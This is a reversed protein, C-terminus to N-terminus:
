FFTPKSLRSITVAMLICTSVAPLNWMLNLFGVLVLEGCSDLGLLDNNMMALIVGYVLTAIQMFSFNAVYFSILGNETEILNFTKSLENLKKFAALMYILSVSGFIFM